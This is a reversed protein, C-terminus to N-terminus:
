DDVIPVNTFTAIPPIELDFTKTDAAPAPFKAWWSEMQGPKLDVELPEKADLEGDEDTLIFLKEPGVQVFFPESDSTPDITLRAPEVGDNYFRLRLTLVGDDRTAEHIVAVLPTDPIGRTQLGEHEVCGTECASNDHQAEQDKRRQERREREYRDDYEEDGATAPTRVPYDQVTMARASIVTSPVAALSFVLPFLRLSRM